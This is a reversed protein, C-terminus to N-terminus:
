GRRACAAVKRAVETKVQAALAHCFAAIFRIQERVHAEGVEAALGTSHAIRNRNRVMEELFAKVENAFDRTRRVQFCAQLPGHSAIKDWSFSVSLRNIVRELNEPTLAGRILALAASNLQFTARGPLCGGVNTCIQDYDFAHHELPQYITELAQGTRYIHEKRIQEWLSDYPSVNASIYDAAVTVIDRAFQEYTAHGSVYLARYIVQDRASVSDLFNSILRHPFNPAQWNIYDRLRPRLRASAAVFDLCETLEQLYADLNTELTEFM